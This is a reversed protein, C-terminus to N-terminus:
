ELFYLEFKLCDTEAYVKEKTVRCIQSDNYILLGQIADFLSKELNDLDPKVSMYKKKKPVSKPKVFCFHMCLSVAGRYPEKPVTGQLVALKILQQWTRTKEPIYWNGFRGKRVRQQGFPKGYVIYHFQEMYTEGGVTQNFLISQEM